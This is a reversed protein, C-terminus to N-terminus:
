NLQDHEHAFNRFHTAFARFDDAVVCEGDKEVFAKCAILQELIRFMAKHNCNPAYIDGLLWSLTIKPENLIVPIANLCEYDMKLYSDLYWAYEPRLKSRHTILYADILARRKRKQRWAGTLVYTAGMASLFFLVVCLSYGVVRALQVTYDGVFVRKWFSPQAENVNLGIFTIDRIGAIKGIPTIDFNTKEDHLILLKISFADGAEMVVPSIIANTASANISLRGQLYKSKTPLIEPKAIEGGSIAIGFPVSPDYDTIRIPANGNNSVRLTVLALMQHNTRLNVGNFLIELRGVDEKVDIVNLRTIEEFRLNPATKQLFVYVGFAIGVAGLVCGVCTLAYKTEWNRFLRFIQMFEQHNM